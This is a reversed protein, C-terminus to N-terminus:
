VISLNPSFENFAVNYCYSCLWKDHSLIYKEEINKMITAYNKYKILLTERLSHQYDIMKKGCHCKINEFKRKSRTLNWQVYNNKEINDNDGLITYFLKGFQRPIFCGPDEYLIVGNVYMAGLNYQATSYDKFYNKQKNKTLDLLKTNLGYKKYYTHITKSFPYQQMLEYNHIKTEYRLISVLPHKLGEFEYLIKAIIEDPLDGIDCLYTWLLSLM